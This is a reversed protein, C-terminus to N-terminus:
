RLRDSETFSPVHPYVAVAEIEHLSTKASFLGWAAGIWFEVVM